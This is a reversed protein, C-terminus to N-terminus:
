PEKNALQRLQDCIDLYNRYYPPIIEKLQRLSRGSLPNDFLELHAAYAKGNKATFYRYETLHSDGKLRTFIVIRPRGPDTGAFVYDFLVVSRPGQMYQFHDTLATLIRSDASATEEGKTLQEVRLLMTFNQETHRLTSQAPGIAITEWGPPIQSFRPGEKSVEIAALHEPPAASLTQILREIAPYLVERECAFLHCDPPPDAPVPASEAQIPPPDRPRAAQEGGRQGCGIVSGAALAVGWAM